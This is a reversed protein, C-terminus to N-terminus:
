QFIAGGFLTNSYTQFCSSWPRAFKYFHGAIQGALISLCQKECQPLFMPLFHELVPNQPSYKTRLPPLFYCPFTSFQL